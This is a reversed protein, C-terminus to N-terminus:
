LAHLVEAIQGPARFLIHWDRLSGHQWPRDGGAAASLGRARSASPPLSEGPGARSIKRVRRRTGAQATAGIAPIRRGGPGSTCGRPQLVELDDIGPVAQAVAYGFDPDATWTVHEAIAQRDRESYEITLKKSNSGEPVGVPRHEDPLSSRGPATCSSSGIARSSTACRSFPNTGPVRLAKAMEDKRRRLHRRKASCSTAAAHESDLKAVGPIINENRNLILPHGAARHQPCRRGVEAGLSLPPQWATAWATGPM